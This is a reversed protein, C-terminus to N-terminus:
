NANKTTKLAGDEHKEENLAENCKLLVVKPTCRLRLQMAFRSCNCHLLQGKSIFLLKKQLMFKCRLTAISM